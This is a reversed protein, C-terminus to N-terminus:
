RQLLTIWRSHEADPPQGATIRLAAHLGTNDGRTSAVSVAVNGESNITSWDLRVGVDACLLGIFTRQARGNGERFPHLANLDGYLGAVGTPILGNSDRLESRARPVTAFVDRAASPLFRALCFLTDGKALDVSRLEGAWEYLDGFIHRHIVCLHDLDFRGALGQTEIEAIRQVSVRAEVVALEDADAIGFRNCLTGNDYCYPDSM